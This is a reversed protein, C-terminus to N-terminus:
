KFVHISYRRIPLLAGRSIMSENMSDTALMVVTESCKQQDKELTQIKLNNKIPMCYYYMCLLLLVCIIVLVYLVNNPNM